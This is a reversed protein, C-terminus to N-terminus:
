KQGYTKFAEITNIMEKKDIIKPTGCAMSKVYLKASFELQELITFAESLSNGVTNIGHNSLLVANDNGLTDAAVKALELSGFQKYPAVKVKYNNSHAVLYSIAPLSEFNTAVVTSYIAHCHIMAQVDNRKLYVQLHMNSESSPKLNGFIQNGSEDIGCIDEELIEDYSVGSPTIYMIRNKQDFYSLNGGTGTTLNRKILLKGYKILEEKIRIDM